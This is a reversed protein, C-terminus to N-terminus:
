EALDNEVCYRTFEATTKLGIKVSVRGRYTAVTKASLGLQEGIERATKGSAVGCLVQYERDSLIEHPSQPAAGQQLELVLRETLSKSIYRQRSLVTRVANVLERAASQKTVYGMAGARFARMAYQSEPYMSLVLVPLKPRVHMMDRILELGHRDPMSIDLIALDWAQMRAQEIAEGANEAQGFEVSGFEESLIEQLGRRVVAHDDVILISVM